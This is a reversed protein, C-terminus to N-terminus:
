FYIKHRIPIVYSTTGYTYKPLPYKDVLNTVRCLHASSGNEVIFSHFHASYDTTQLLSCHLYPINEIVFINDICGFQILDGEIGLAVCLGKAYKMGGYKVSTASYLSQANETLTRLSLAIEPPLKSFSVVKTGLLEVTQLDFLDGSASVLCQLMQHRSALTKCVNKRNKTTRYIEKFYNHKGEFRLTDVHVLPGFQEVQSPYHIMFHAKPKVNQEPFEKIYSELFDSICEQLIKIDSRHINPGTLYLLVDLLNLLIQYKSDNLPVKHGVFLPFLRMLCWMQVAQQRVHLKAPPAPLISPKNTVDSGKYDFTEIRSNLYEIDFFRQEVCYSIINELVDVAVGEFVDHAIDSPLGNIVHYHKLAHLACESKM